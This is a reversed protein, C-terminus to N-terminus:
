EIKTGCEPCFKGLQGDAPTYGCNPCKAPAAAPKPSGCQSCFNGTNGTAGCSCTWGAAAAPAPKPSGCQSCFNGQNGAAGCSCTWGGAAGAAAGAAAGVVAAGAAQQAQQSKLLDFAAANGGGMGGQMGGLMGMGAFGTVAGASNGAATQMAATTGLVQQAALASPDSGFMKAQDVQEIRERSKDDPTIGGIAVSEVVMGRSQLWEDDLAERMYKRLRGQETPLVSFVLKDVAGCRNLVEAFSDTFEVRPQKPETPKGMLDVTKFESVVNGSISKFFVVPDEIKFSFKGNLRLYINRYEPDNYPLPSATGFNNDRIELMNVFYVRQQRPVEGGTAFRSFWDSVLKKGTEMNLGGSFMSPSSSSDWTYIGAETTFDTVQGNDVLLLATGEPVAIKSGSSIIEENGHNKGKTIRAAGRKVLVDAGLSDCTFFELYQDRAVDILGGLANGGLNSAADGALKKAGSLAEKILGM